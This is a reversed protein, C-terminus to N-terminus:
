ASALSLGHVVWETAEADSPLEVHIRLWAWPCEGSAFAASFSGAPASMLTRGNQPGAACVIEVHLAEPDSSGETPRATGALRVRGPPLRVLQEAVDGHSGALASVQLVGHSADRSAGADGSNLLRWDFPLYDPEAKFDANRLLNDPRDGALHAQPFLAMGLRLADDQRGQDALGEMLLRDVQPDVKGGQSAFAIRLDAAAKLGEPSQALQRWFQDSWPPRNALLKLLAEHLERRGAANAMLQLIPGQLVTERRLIQDVVDLAGRERGTRSYAALLDVAILNSRRSLGNAKELLPLVKDPASSQADRAIVYLADVALPERRYAERALAVAAAPPKAEPAQEAVQKAQYLDVALNAKASGDLPFAAAALAPATQQWAQAVSALLAAVALLLALPVLVLARM